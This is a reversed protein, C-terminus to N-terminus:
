VNFKKIRDMRVVTTLLERILGRIKDWNQIGLKSNGVLAEMNYLAQRLEVVQRSQLQELAKYAVDAIEDTDPTKDEPIEM